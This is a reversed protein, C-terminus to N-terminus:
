RGAIKMVLASALVACVGWWMVKMRAVAVRGAPPVALPSGGASPNPDLVSATASTVVAPISTSGAVGREKQAMNPLDKMTPQAYEPFITRFKPNRCNHAHSAKAYAIKQEATGKVASTTIEDSLMFSLLGTLITEISWAPNWSGPHFDSMSTCIRTDPAFRGSPTFLKIGPPAFPYQAPFILVGHYEGGAYVEDEPGRIIFHCELLDNEDPRALIYPPPAKALGAYEKQLRKHAARAM